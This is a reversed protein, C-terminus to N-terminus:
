APHRLALVKMLRKLAARYKSLMRIPDRRRRSEPRKDWPQAHAQHMPRQLVTRIKTSVSNLVEIMEETTNM